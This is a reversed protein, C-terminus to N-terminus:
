KPTQVMSIAKRRGVKDADFMKCVIWSLSAKWASFRM